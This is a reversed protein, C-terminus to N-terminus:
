YIKGNSSVNRDASAFGEIITTQQSYAIKLLHRTETERNGSPYYKEMTGM